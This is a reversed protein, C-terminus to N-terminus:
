LRIVTNDITQVFVIVEPPFVFVPIRFSHMFRHQCTLLCVLVNALYIEPGVPFYSPTSSSAFRHPMAVSRPAAPRVRYLNIAGNVSAFPSSNCCFSMRGSLATQCLLPIFEVGINLWLLRREFLM